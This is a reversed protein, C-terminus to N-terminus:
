MACVARVHACRHMHLSAVKDGAHDVEMDGEGSSIKTCDARIKGAAGRICSRWVQQDGALIPSLSYKKCLIGGRERFWMKMCM